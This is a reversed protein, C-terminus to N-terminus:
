QNEWQVTGRFCEAEADYRIDFTATAGSNYHRAYRWMGTRVPKHLLFSDLWLLTPDRGEYWDGQLHIPYQIVRDQHESYGILQTEVSSCSTANFLAFELPKGDGNFDKLDMIVPKGEGARLPPDVRYFKPLIRYPIDFEDRWGGIFPIKVEVTNIIRDSLTDVLSVRTRGRYFWGRSDEPCTYPEPEEDRPFDELETMWLILARNPHTSQPVERFEVVKVDEPFGPFTLTPGLNPKSPPAQQGFAAGPLLAISVAGIVRIGIVVTM